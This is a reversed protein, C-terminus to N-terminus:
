IEIFSELCLLWYQYFWSSLVVWIFHVFDFSGSHWIVRDNGFISVNVTFEAPNWIEVHFTWFIVLYSMNSISFIKIPWHVIVYGEVVWCHGIRFEESLIRWAFRNSSFSNLCHTYLVFWLITWGHSWSLASELGWNICSWEDQISIDWVFPFIMAFDMCSLLKGITNWKQSCWVNFPVLQGVRWLVSSVWIAALSAEWLVCVVCEGLSKVILLHSVWWGFFSNLLNSSLVAPVGIDFWDGFIIFFYM